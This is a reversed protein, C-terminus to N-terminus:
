PTMPVELRHKDTDFKYSAYIGDEGRGFLIDCYSDGEEMVLTEM